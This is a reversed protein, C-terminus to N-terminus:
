EEETENEESALFSWWPKNVRILEGNEANVQAQVSMETGFLGLFKARKQTKIEYALKSQEGRGVEKLEIECEGNCNRLRLRQLATESAIDPMVKIEANRGNSLGAYLRTRNQVQEQSLNCDCDAKFEGVRLQMRNQVRELNMQEGQPGIHMGVKAMVRQGIGLNDMGAQEGSGNTGMAGPGGHNDATVLSVSFIFLLTILISKKM